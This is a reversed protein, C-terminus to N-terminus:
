QNIIRNILSDKFRILRNNELENYIEKLHETKYNNRVNDYYHKETSLINNLPIYNMPGLWITETVFPSIKNILLQPNYDLFPEISVSTKFAMTYAFQLSKFREEFNPAGPEWFNLLDNDISTITFRFQIQKRYYNFKEIM